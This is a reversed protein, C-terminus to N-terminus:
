EAWTDIEDPEGYHVGLLKRVCLSMELFVFRVSGARVERLIQATESFTRTQPQSTGRRHARTHAMGVSEGLSALTPHAQHCV